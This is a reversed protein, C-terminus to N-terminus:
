PEVTLSLNCKGPVGEQTWPQYLTTSRAGTYSAV